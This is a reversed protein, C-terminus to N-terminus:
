QFHSLCNNIHEDFARLVKPHNMQKALELATQGQADKINYDAGNKLYIDVAGAFNELVALHLPTQKENNQADITINQQEALFAISKLDKSNETLIHLATNGKITKANIDANHQQVLFLLGKLINSDYKYGKKSKPNRWVATHIPREGYNNQTEVMKSEGHKILTDMIEILDSNRTALHLPTDGNNNKINSKAKYKSLINEVFSENQFWVGLHLPTNGDKNKINVKAGSDMLIKLSHIGNQHMPALHLPSDGNNNKVLVDAGNEIIFKASLVDGRKIFSHLATDGNIDQSHINTGAEIILETIKYSKSTHLPSQQNNNKSYVDAKYKLLVEATEANDAVHLATNGNWNKDQIDTSDNKLLDEVVFAEGMKSAFILATDGWTTRAMEMKEKQENFFRKTELSLEESDGYSLPNGIFLLIFFLKKILIIPFSM